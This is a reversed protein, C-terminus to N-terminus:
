LFFGNEAEFSDLPIYEENINLAKHISCINLDYDINLIFWCIQYIERGRSYFTSTDEVHLFFEAFESKLDIDLKKLANAYEETYSEHWWKKSKFFTKLKDSLM